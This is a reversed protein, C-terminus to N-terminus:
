RRRRILFLASFLGLLSVSPEPITLRDAQVLSNPVTGSGFFGSAGATLVDLKHNSSNDAPTIWPDSSDEGTASTYLGYAQGADITSPSTGADPFWVLALPDGTNWGNGFSLGTMSESVAGDLGFGGGFVGKGIILDSSGVFDNVSIGGSGITGFGDVNTDAVLIWSGTLTSVAIDSGDKLTDANLLFSVEGIASSALSFLAVCSLTSTIKRM